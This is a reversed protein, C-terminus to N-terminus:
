GGSLLLPFLLLYDRLVLFFRNFDHEGLPNLFLNNKKEDTCNYKQQVQYCKVEESITKSVEARRLM